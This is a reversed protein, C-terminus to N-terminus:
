CFKYVRRGLSVAVIRLSFFFFPHASFFIYIFFLYLLYFVLRLCKLKRTLVRFVTLLIQPWHWSLADCKYGDSVIKASLYECVCHRCFKCVFWTRKQGRHLLKGFNYEFCFLLFYTYLILVCFQFMKSFSNADNAGRANGDMQMRQRKRAMHNM